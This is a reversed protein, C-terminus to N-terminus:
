GSIQKKNLRAIYFIQQKVLFMADQHPEIKINLDFFSVDSPSYGTKFRAHTMATIFDLTINQETSINFLVDFDDEGLIGAFRNKPFGLWNLDRKTLVTADNEKIKENIFCIHRFIVSSKKFFGQLYDFAEKQAPQWVVAVKRIRELDPLLPERKLYSFEKQLKKRAYKKIWEM